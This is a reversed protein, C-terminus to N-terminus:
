FHRFDHSIGEWWFNRSGGRDDLISILFPEIKDKGDGRLIFIKINKM